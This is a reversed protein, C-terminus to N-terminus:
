IKCLEFFDKEGIIWIDQGKNILDEAKRHKNSKNHGGLKKIDQNGVVLINTYKNVGTHVNCGLSAALDAAERRSMTLAGTFVMNNGYLYGEPNGDKTIPKAHEPNIPQMVRELWGELTIGTIEIAKLLVHASAKADELADHSKYDYGISKCINALGYGSWAFENWTRRAVRATDLWIPSPSVLNYKSFAQEIAIRDFHTHCVVISKDLYQIIKADVENFKPASYVTDDNIGHIAVNISSFYDEPNIYTTWEESLQHDSYVALGIQCISSFDANATEVDIAVFYM